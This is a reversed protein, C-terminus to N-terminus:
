QKLLFCVIVILFAVRVIIYLLAYVHDWRSIFSVYINPRYDNNDSYNAAYEAPSYNFASYPCKLVYTNM